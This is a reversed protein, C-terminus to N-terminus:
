CTNICHHSDKISQFMKCCCQAYGDILKFILATYCVSYCVFYPLRATRQKPLFDMATEWNEIDLPEFSTFSVHKQSLVRCNDVANVCVIM